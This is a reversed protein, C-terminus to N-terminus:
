KLEGAQALINEFSEQRLFFGAEKLREMIPKIETVYGKAKSKPPPIFYTM